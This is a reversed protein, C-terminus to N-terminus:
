LSTDLEDSGLKNKLLAIKLAILFLVLIQSTFTQTVAVGIEPGSQMLIYGDALRTATSGIVNTIVLTRCGANKAERLAALTDATEGSQTIAIVLSSQNRTGFYRFESALEVFVPVNTM